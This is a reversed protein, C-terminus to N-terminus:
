APIIDVIELTDPDIILINDGVVVYDFGEFQPVIEVIDAPLVEVHITRPIKVGVAVNFNVHATVRPAHNRGIITKIKGRQTQSLQVKGPTGSAKGAAREGGNAGSETTEEQAGQQEEAGRKEEQAGRREQAGPNEGQAGHQPTMQKQEGQGLREDPKANQTQAAKAAGPGNINGNLAGGMAGPSQHETSETKAAGAAAPNQITQATAAGGFGVLAAAAVTTLLIKRM